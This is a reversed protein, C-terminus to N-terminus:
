IDVSTLKNTRIDTNGCKLSYVYIGFLHPTCIVITMKRTKWDRTTGLSHELAIVPSTYRGAKYTISNYMTVTRKTFIFWESTGWTMSSLRTEVKNLFSSELLVYIRYDKFWITICTTSLM